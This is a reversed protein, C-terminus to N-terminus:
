KNTLIWESIIKEINKMAQPLRKKLLIKEGKGDKILVYNRDDYSAYKYVAKKGDLYSFTVNYEGEKDGVPTDAMSDVM